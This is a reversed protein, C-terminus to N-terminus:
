VRHGGLSYFTLWREGIERIVDNSDAKMLKGGSVAAHNSTQSTPNILAGRPSCVLVGDISKFKQDKSKLEREILETAVKFTILPDLSEFGLQALIVFGMDEDTYGYYEKTERIQRNAEKLKSRLSKEFGEDITFEYQGTGNSNIDIPQIIIANIAPIIGGHPFHEKDISKLEIIIRREKNVYDANKFSPSPGVDDCVRSYGLGALFLDFEAEVCQGITM